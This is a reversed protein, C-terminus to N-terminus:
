DIFALLKGAMSNPFHMMFIRFLGSIIIFYLAFHVLEPLVTM